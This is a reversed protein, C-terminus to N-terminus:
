GAANPSEKLFTFAGEASQIQRYIHQIAEDIAARACDPDSPNARVCVASALGDLTQRIGGLYKQYTERVEDTSILEKTMLQVKVHALEAENARRAAEGYAHVGARLAVANSGRGLEELLNFAMREARQARRLRSLSSDKDGAETTGSDGAEIKVAAAGSQTRPPKQLNEVRWSDAEAVSSLPMGKKALRAVYSPSVGWVRAIESVRM